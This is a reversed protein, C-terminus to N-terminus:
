YRTITLVWYTVQSVGKNWCRLTSLRMERYTPHRSTAWNGGWTDNGMKASSPTDVIEDGPIDSPSVDSLKRKLNDNGTKASSPTDVIEDGPIDSSSVDSLNGKWTDNETQRIVFHWLHWGWHTQDLSTMLWFTQKRCVMLELVNWFKGIDIWSKTKRENIKMSSDVRYHVIRKGLLVVTDELPTPGRKKLSGPYGTM